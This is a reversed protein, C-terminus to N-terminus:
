NKVLSGANFSERVFTSSLASRVGNIAILRELNEQSFPLPEGIADTVGDWGVVVEHVLDSDSVTKPKGYMDDLRSQPLRKFEATFEATIPAADGPLTFAVKAKFTNKVDISFM